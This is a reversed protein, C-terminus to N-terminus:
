NKKKKNSDIDKDHEKNKNAVAKANMHIKDSSDGLTSHADDIVNYDDRKLEEKDIDYEDSM